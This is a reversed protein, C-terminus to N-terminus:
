PSSHAGSLDAVVPSGADFVFGLPALVRVVQEAAWDELDCLLLTRWPTLVVPREVAALFEWQRPEVVGGPVAAGLTVLEGEAHELWGIPLTGSVAPVDRLHDPQAQSGPAGVHRAVARVWDALDDDAGGDRLVEGTDAGGSRVAFEASGVATFVLGAAGLDGSGDDVGVVVAEPALGDRRLALELRQALARADVRGGVRGTLPSCVVRHAAAGVPRAHLGSEQLRDLWVPKLRAELDGSGALVPGHKSDELATALLQVQAANLHGAPPRIRMSDSAM